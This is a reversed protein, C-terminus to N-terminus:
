FVRGSFKNQNLEVRSSVRTAPEISGRIENRIATIQGPLDRIFEFARTNADSIPPIFISIFEAHGGHPDFFLRIQATIKLDPGLEFDATSDLSRFDPFDSAFIDEFTREPEESVGVLNPTARKRVTRAQYGYRLAALLLYILGL